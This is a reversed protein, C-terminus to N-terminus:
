KIFDGFESFAELKDKPVKLAWIEKDDRGYFILLDDGEDILSSPFIFKRLGSYFTYSSLPRKTMRTIKFPPEASFWYAGMIYANKHSHGLCTVQYPSHFLSLYENGIQVCPTGGRAIGFDWIKKSENEEVLECVGTDIDLKVIVHPEILYVLYIKGQYIFPSWNKEVHHFKKGKVTFLASEQFTLIKATGFRDPFVECMYMKRVYGVEEVYARDNYFTFYREQCKILRPDNPSHKSRKIGPASESLYIPASVVQLDHNLRCLGLSKNRHMTIHKILYDFFSRYEARYVMLYGDESKVVGPITGIEFLGPLHIQKADGGLDVFASKLESPLIRAQKIFLGYVVYISFVLALSLFFRRFLSKTSWTSNRVLYSLSRKM